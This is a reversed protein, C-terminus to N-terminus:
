LVGGGAGVATYHSLTEGSRRRSYEPRDSTKTFAFVLQLPLISSVVTNGCEEGVRQTDKVELYEEYLYSRKSHIQLNQKSRKLIAVCFM